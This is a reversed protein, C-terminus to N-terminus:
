LSATRRGRGAGYLLERAATSHGRGRRPARRAGGAAGARVRQRSSVLDPISSQLSFVSSQVDPENRHAPWDAIEAAAELTWGGVFVGLRRFLAQEEPDLLNYSWDITNRLTQQRTPLDRPGGTLVQLRRELRALLAEPPFFKIRAAALEIALPLGELRSCIAAIAPASDNTVTFGASAAQARAIFLKVADYQTIDANFTRVNSREFTEVAPPLALPPVAFEHEGYLHLVARSTVLVKLEPAATLLGAVLPAAALVQEFNDLLLLARKLRLFAHLSEEISRSAVEAVGLAHAITGAILGPDGIPALNVFWVGDPFHPDSELRREQQHGGAV